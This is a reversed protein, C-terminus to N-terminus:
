TTVQKVTIEEAAVDEIFARHNAEDNEKENQFMEEIRSNNQLSRFIKAHRKIIGKKHMQDRWVKRPGNAAPSVKAIKELEWAPIWEPSSKSGDPLVFINYGGVIKRRNHEEETAADKPIHKITGEAPLREFTEDAFVLETIVDKIMGDERLIAVWGKYDIDLCCEGKRPVLHCLGLAPNLTLNIRAAFIVADYISHPSCRQLEDKKRVLQAAFGVEVQIRREDLPTGSLGNPLAKLADQWTRIQSRNLVAPKNEQKPQVAPKVEPEPKPAPANFGPPVEIGDKVETEKNETEM